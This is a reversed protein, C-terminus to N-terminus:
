MKMVSADGVLIFIYNRLAHFDKFFSVGMICCHYLKITNKIVRWLSTTRNVKLLLYFNFVQMQLITQMVIDGCIVFSKVGESYHRTWWSPGLLTVRPNECKVSVTVCGLTLRWYVQKEWLRSHFSMLHTKPLNTCLPLCFSTISSVSFLCKPDYVGANIHTLYCSILYLHSM